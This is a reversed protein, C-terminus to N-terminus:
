LAIVERVSSRRNNAQEKATAWRCNEPCYDGDNEIRDLSLNDSYGHAIAWHHFVLFDNDWEKCVSIGRGGYNKYYPMRSNNCRTKMGGWISFLRSHSLGHKASEKNRDRLQEKHICGCSQIAGRKLHKGIVMKTRGCDCLCLWRPFGKGSKPEIYNEDRALVTLRGFRRGTLDKLVDGM